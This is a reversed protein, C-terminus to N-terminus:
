EEEAEEEPQPEFYEFANMFADMEDANQTSATVIITVMHDGVREMLYWQQAEGSALTVPMKLFTRGAVETEEAGGFEYGLDTQKLLKELIEVYGRENINETLKDLALDEALMVITSNNETTVGFDFVSINDYGDIMTLELDDNGKNGSLANLEKTSLVNWGNESNFRLNM